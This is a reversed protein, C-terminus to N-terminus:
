PEIKADRLYEKWSKIEFQFGKEQMMELGETLMQANKMNSILPISFDIATRRIHYGASLDGPDAVNPVNIVLEISGTKLVALLDPLVDSPLVSSNIAPDDELSDSTEAVTTATDRDTVTVEVSPLDTEEIIGISSRRKQAARKLHDPKDLPTVQVGHQTYFAATGATGYLTYGMRVLSQASALFEVKSAHPGISLLITKQKNPLRFSGTALLGKIYAELPRSSFCAVEGTSAMEVRLVPDAGQLRTFSFMPVKVVVHDIDILEIRSAKVPSNVMIKTALEIFNVNFTKSVFPVSRSARLNCEIVKIDNNKSLYQINFPGTIHLARAIKASIKKIRKITETYLKQAPLLLTADGSHVGANEIHESIAFNVITGDQAVGDYEIEKAHVIFKSIVVPHDENLQAAQSLYKVLQADTHAVNMAAGSLVYSPRVLVPYGVESAFNTADEMSRLENWPPQDVSISDMLQSFKQRNEATDIDSPSTGLIKVGSNSLPIALNNPIQGGVSVVVGMPNELAYIDMVVEFSLEEFYLRSCEDYDTSVTEPNYNIMISQFGLKRLTRICSVACWDFECSSGIRYAGCGLVIVGTNSPASAHPAHYPDTPGVSTLSQNSAAQFTVDHESGHYTMYLYNTQAPFEAALTDIQKVWPTIGRAIRLARVALPTSVVCRAIQADSFGLQKCALITDSTLAEIPKGALTTMHSEMDIIRKLKSLFWRDIRTLEYLRDVTYEEGGRQLAIALAMLRQDSPHSLRENLDATSVNRFPAEKTDGLGDMNTDVMRMAKQMTEEFSRGIAMVEGVSKMASGIKDSVHQFKNM